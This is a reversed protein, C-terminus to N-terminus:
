SKMRVGFQAANIDAVTWPSGTAPNTERIQKLYTYSNGLSVEPGEYDTTGVRCILAASRAGADDKRICALQLIGRISGTLTIDQFNETDTAGVTSTYLYNTDDNAPTENVVAYHSTGSSPTWGTHSGDANPLITVVKIDGLFDNNVSGSTDCVYLDDIWQQNGNGASLALRNAYNNASQITNLGSATRVTRSNVRLEWSGTSDSFRCKVEIYFWERLSYVYKPSEDIVTNGRYLRVQGEPGLLIQCQQTTGDFFRFLFSYPVDWGPFTSLNVYVAAGVILTGANVGLYKTTNNSFPRLAQSGTRATTGIEVNGSEEYMRQIQSSNYHDFGDIWLLAM